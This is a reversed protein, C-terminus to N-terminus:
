PLFIYVQFHPVKAKLIASPLVGSRTHIATLSVSYNPIFNCPGMLFLTLSTSVQNGSRQEGFLSDAPSVSEPFPQNCDAYACYQLSVQTLAGPEQPQMYAVGIICKFNGTIHHINGVWRSASCMLSHGCWGAEARRLFDQSANCTFAVYLKGAKTLKILFESDFFILLSLTM